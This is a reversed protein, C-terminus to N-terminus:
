RQNLSIKVQKRLVTANPNYVWETQLLVLSRHDITMFCQFVRSIDGLQHAFSVGM